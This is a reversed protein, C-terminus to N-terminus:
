CNKLQMRLYFLLLDNVFALFIYIYLILLNIILIYNYWHGTLTIAHLTSTIKYLHKYMYCITCIELDRKNKYPTKYYMSVSHGLPQFPCQWQHINM